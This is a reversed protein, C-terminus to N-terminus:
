ATYKFIGAAYAPKSVTVGFSLWADIFWQKETKDFHIDTTLPILDGALLAKPAVYVAVCNVDSQEINYAFNNSANSLFHTVGVQHAEPFRNTEQIRLGNAKLIVGNAYDGNAASFDGSMLKDNRQLTTKQEPRMLLVGENLEIDKKRLDLCLDQIAYEFVDPDNEANPAPLVISTAGRHGDPLDIQKVSYVSTTKGVFGDIVEYGTILGTASVVPRNVSVQSAKIAQALFAEDTFKGIATGQEQAIDSRVDNQTIFDDILLLVTRALVVTDVKLTTKDYIAGSDTPRVGGTLKQLKVGGIFRNSIVAQGQMNRIKFFNKMFSTKVIQHEVEGTYKELFLPNVTGTNVGGQHGDKVPLNATQQLLTSM